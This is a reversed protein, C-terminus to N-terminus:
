AAQEAQLAQLADNWDGLGKPPFRLTVKRGQGTFTEVAKHAAKTGADGNDAFVTVSRVIDPLTMKDLRSGIGAWCPVGFLQMASLATEIGEALGLVPGARALRVAGNGIHGLAMKPSSLVAKASGDPLLYTRHVGTINRDAGQVAAVMAPFQTGTPHYELNPHFRLSPPVPAVIGRRALYISVKSGAAPQSEHWIKLAETSKWGNRNDTPDKGGQNRPIARTGRRSSRSRSSSRLTATPAELLGQDSLAAKVERWDCGGFCHLDIGDSKRTDDAIKLAPTRGDDHCPCLVMGYSGHWRGGFARVIERAYM